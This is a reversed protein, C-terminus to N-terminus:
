GGRIYSKLAEAERETFIGNWDGVSGQVVLAGICHFDMTKVADGVTSRSDITIVSSGKRQLNNRNTM